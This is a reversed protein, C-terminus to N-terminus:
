GRLSSSSESVTITEEIVNESFSYNDDPGYTESYLMSPVFSSQSGADDFISAKDAENAEVAAKWLQQQNFLLRIM